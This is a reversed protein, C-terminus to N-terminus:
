IMTALNMAGSKKGSGAGGVTVTVTSAAQEKKLEDCEKRLDSLMYQYSPIVIILLSIIALVLAIIPSIQANTKISTDVKYTASMMGTYHMGNVAISIIWAAVFRFIENDPKWALFRFIIWFGASAAVIAILMAVAVIAYDWEVKAGFTQSVMGTFHMAGVGGATFVGGLVLWHIDSVFAALKVNSASKMKALSQGQMNQALTATTNISSFFKDKMAIRLGAYVFLIAAFMSFVTWGADYSIEIAKGDLEVVMAMMGTFHMAWIGVIGIAASMLALYAEATATAAKLVARRRQEALQVATFAGVFSVFLSVIVFRFDYSVDYETGNVVSM